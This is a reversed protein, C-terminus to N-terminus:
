IRKVHVKLPAFKQLGEILATPPEFKLLVRGDKQYVAFYINADKKGTTADIVKDFQEKLVTNYLDDKVNAMLEVNKVSVSVLRKRASKNYIVDIDLVDETQVYEFEKSFRSSLKHGFYYAGVALLLGLGSFAGLAPMFMIAVFAIMTAAMYILVTLCMEMPTKEKKILYEKFDM